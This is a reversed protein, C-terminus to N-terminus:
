GAAESEPVVRGGSQVAARAEFFTMGAAQTQLAADVVTFRERRMQLAAPKEVATAFVSLVSFVLVPPPTDPRKKPDLLIEEFDDSADMAAGMELPRAIQVGADRSEFGRSALMEEQTLDLFMGLAFEGSVPSTALTAAGAAVKEIRLTQPAGLRAGEFREIPVNLPVVPQRLTLPESPSLWVGERKSDTLMLGPAGGSEWNSPASIAFALTGTVDAGPEPVGGGEHITLSGSVSLTWFLFKVSAKGSLVTPLLGSITGVFRVAAISRSGVLLEVSAEIKINCTGDFGMLVDFSLLGRIGFGYLRAEIKGALGFQISSPTYAVYGSVALKLHDGKSLSLALRPPVFIKTGPPVYDPHFGGISIYTGRNGGDTQPSGHFLSAGGTLEGSWIRSNRLVIRLNLEDTRTDWIAVGDAFIHIPRKSAVVKEGKRPRPYIGVFQAVVYLRALSSAQIDFLVGLDLTLAGGFASFKASIGVVSADKQTPFLRGLAALYQPAKGIPDEPFLIADLDGTAIGALFAEPSTTRNSAYLLGAGQLFGFVPQPLVLSVVVLWSRESDKTAGQYIGLGTLTFKDAIRLLVAGSLRDAAADYFFAGGGVIKWVKLELGMGKPFVPEWGTKAIGGVNGDAERASGAFYSAGVGNVHLKLVSFLELTLNAAAELRLSTEDGEKGLFARLHLAEIRLGGIGLPIRQNIPLLLDGGAGGKFRVGGFVSAEATVDFTLRLQPVYDALVKGGSTILWERANIALEGKEVRLWASLEDVSARAGLAFREVRFEIASKKGPSPQTSSKHLLEAQFSVNGTAELGDPSALLGFSAGNTLKLHFGGGLEEDINAQGHVQVYLKSKGGMTIPIPVLTLAFPAPPEEPEQEKVGALFDAAEIKGSRYPTRGEGNDILLTFAHQALKRADEFGEIEPHDFGYWFRILRQNFAEKKPWAAWVVMVAALSDSTIPAWDPDLGGEGDGRGWGAQRALDGLIAYWREGILGQPYSEQLRQDTFFLFAIAWHLFPLRLHKTVLLLVPFLIKMAVTAKRDVGEASTAPPPGAASLFAVLGNIVQAALTIIRAWQEPDEGAEEAADAKERLEQVSSTWEAPPSASPLGVADYYAFAARPDGLIDRLVELTEVTVRAATKLITVSTVSM